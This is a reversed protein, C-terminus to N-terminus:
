ISIDSIHDAQMLNLKKELYIKSVRKLRAMLYFRHHSKRSGVEPGFRSQLYRFIFSTVKSVRM